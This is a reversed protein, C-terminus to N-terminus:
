VGSWSLYFDSDIGLSAVPDPLHDIRVNEILVSDAVPLGDVGLADVKVVHSGEGLDDCRWRWAAGDYGLRGAGLDGVGLGLGAVDAFAFAAEFGSRNVDEPWMAGQDVVEGDVEVALQTDVPMREDRVLGVEAASVVEPRWAELLDSQSRWLGEVDGGPIALLEIRNQRTRDLVLCMERVDSDLTVDYLKGQVYVQVLRDAQLPARWWLHVLCPHEGSATVVPRALVM